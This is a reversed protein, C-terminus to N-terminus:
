EKTNEDAPTYHEPGGYRFVALQPLHKVGLHFLEISSSIHGIGIKAVFGKLVSDEFLTVSQSEYASKIFFLKM